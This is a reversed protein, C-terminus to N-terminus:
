HGLLPTREGIRNSWHAIRRHLREIWQPILARAVASILIGVVILSVTHTATHFYRQSIAGSGIAWATTTAFVWDKRHSYDVLHLAILGNVIVLVTQAIESNRTFSFLDFLAYLTETVSISTLISFPANLFAEDTKNRPPFHRLRHYIFILTALQWLLVVFSFARHLGSVALSVTGSALVAVLLYWYSIGELVDKPAKPLWQYITLGILLFQLVAVPIYGYWHNDVNPGWIFVSYHSGLLLVTAVTNAIKIKLDLNAM